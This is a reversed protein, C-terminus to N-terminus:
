PRGPGIGTPGGHTAPHGHAHGVGVPRTPCHLRPLPKRCYDDPTCPSAFCDPNWWHFLGGGDPNWGGVPGLRRLFHTSGHPGQARPDGALVLPSTLIVILVIGIGSKRVM